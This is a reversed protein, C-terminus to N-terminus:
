PSRCRRKGRSQWMYEWTHGWVFGEPIPRFDGKAAEEVTLQEMTLFGDFHIPQVPMYFDQQITRQWHELRDRYENNMLQM